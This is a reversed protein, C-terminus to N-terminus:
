AEETKFELKVAAMQHKSIFLKFVFMATAKSTVAHASGRGIVEILHVALSCSAYLM